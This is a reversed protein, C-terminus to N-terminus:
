RDRAARWARLDDPTDLDVPSGPVAVDDVLHAYGDLYRRGGEDAGALAMAAQWHGAAMVIPHGRRGACTAVAIRRPQARWRSLVTAIAEAEIGPTDVLLVAVGDGQAAALGLLLSSRMGREPCPNVVARAGAVSAADARVVVIVEDCGGLAMAAVARVLLSRGDVVIEAKPTGM